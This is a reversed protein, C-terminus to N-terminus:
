SARHAVGDVIDGYIGNPNLRLERNITDVAEYWGILSDGEMIIHPVVEVRLVGSAGLAVVSSFLQRRTIM